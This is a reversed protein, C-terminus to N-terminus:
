FVKDIVWLIGQILRWGLYAGVMVVMLKFSFPTKVEDEPNLHEPETV